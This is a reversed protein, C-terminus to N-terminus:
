FVEKIDLDELWYEQGNFVFDPDTVEYGFPNVYPEFGCFDLIDDDSMCHNSSVSALATGFSDYVVFM